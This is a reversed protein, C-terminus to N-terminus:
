PTARPPTDPRLTSLFERFDDIVSGFEEVTSTLVARIVARKRADETDIMSLYVQSQVLERKVGNIETAMRLDQTLGPAEPTGIENRSVVTVDPAAARLNEVSEDAIEALTATDLRYEGDITINATFGSGHTARNLAVFAAGPAGVEDPPAPEWGDPLKFQIPIPLETAM